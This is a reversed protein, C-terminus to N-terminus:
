SILHPLPWVDPIWPEVSSSRRALANTIHVVAEPSKNSVKRIVEGIRESGSVLGVVVHYTPTANNALLRIDAMVVMHNRDGFFSSGLRYGLNEVPRSHEGEGGVIFSLNTKKGLIYPMCIPQFDGIDLLTLTHGYGIKAIMRAFSQPMSVITATLKGPFKEEFAKTRAHDMIAKIKWKSSLDIDEPLGRLAVAKDMFYFFM